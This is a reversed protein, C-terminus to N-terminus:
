SPSFRPSSKAQNENTSTSLNSYCSVTRPESMRKRASIVFGLEKERRMPESVGRLLSAVGPSPDIKCERKGYLGSGPRTKRERSVGGRFFSLLDLHMLSIHVFRRAGLDSNSRKGGGDHCAGTSCLTLLIRYLRALSRSV